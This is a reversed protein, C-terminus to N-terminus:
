SVLVISSTMVQSSAPMSMGPDKAKSVASSTLGRNLDYRDLGARSLDYVDLGLKLGSRRSGRGQLTTAVGVKAAVSVM